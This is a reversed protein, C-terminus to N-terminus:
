GSSGNENYTSYKVRDMPTGWREKRVEAAGVKGTGWREKRVEAAGVKVARM